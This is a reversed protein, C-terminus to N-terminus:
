DFIGLVLPKFLGDKSDQSIEQLMGSRGTLLRFMNSGMNTYSEMNKKEKDLILHNVKLFDVWDKIDGGNETLWFCMTPFFLHRLEPMKVLGDFIDYHALIDKQLDKSLKNFAGEKVFTVAQVISKKNLKEYGPYTKMGNVVHPASFFGDLALQPVSFDNLQKIENAVVVVSVKKNDDFCNTLIREGRSFNYEARPNRLTAIAFGRNISEAKGEGGFKLERPNGSIREAM